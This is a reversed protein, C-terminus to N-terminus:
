TTYMYLDLTKLNVSQVDGVDLDANGRSKAAASVSGVAANVTLKSKAMPTMKSNAYGVTNLM